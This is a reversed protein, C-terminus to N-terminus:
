LGARKAIFLVARTLLKVHALVQANSPSTNALFARLDAVAQAVQDDTPTDPGYDARPPVAPPPDAPDPTNGQARWAAYRRAEETDGGPIFSTLTPVYRVAGAGSLKYDAM